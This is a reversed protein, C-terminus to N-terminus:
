EIQFFLNDLRELDFTQEKLCDSQGEKGPPVLPPNRMSYVPNGYLPNPEGRDEGTRDEGTRYHELNAWHMPGGPVYGRPKRRTAETYLQLFRAWCSEKAFSIKPYDPNVISWPFYVSIGNSFQYDVGSFCSAKVIHEKIVDKVGRLANRLLTRDSGQVTQSAYRQELLECFDYLDAFREGNYSQAEWHALVIQDLFESRGGKEKIALGRSLEANLQETLGSVAKVLLEMSNRSTDIASIDSSFGGVVYDSYYNSYQHVIIRSLDLPPLDQNKQLVSDMARLIDGYPWGATASYGEAGVVFDVLDRLQYCIEGMSMLCVDMGVVEIKKFNHEIAQFVRQLDGLSLSGRPNEDKLLYDAETGGAHGALVIMHREAKFTEMSWGIFDYLTEPDGTNVESVEEGERSAAATVRSAKGRSYPYPKSCSVVPIVDEGIKEGDKPVELKASKKERNIEYRHVPVKSGRPDFQATVKVRDGTKVKKMETLSYVCESTLNNDGALYVMVLWKYPPKDDISNEASTQKTEDSNGKTDTM